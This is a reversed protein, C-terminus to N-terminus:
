ASVQIEKLLYDVESEISEPFLNSYGKSIRAILESKVKKIVKNRIFKIDESPLPENFPNIKRRYKKAIQLSALFEKRYKDTLEEKNISKELIRHVTSNSLNGILLKILKNRNQSM